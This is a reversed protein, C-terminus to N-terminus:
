GRRRYKRSGAASDLVWASIEVGVVRIVASLATPPSLSGRQRESRRCYQVIAFGM